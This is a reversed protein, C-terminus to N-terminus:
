TPRARMRVRGVSTAGGEEEEDRSSESVSPRVSPCVASPYPLFSPLFSPLIKEEKREGTSVGSHGDRRRRREDSTMMTTQQFQLQQQSATLVAARKLQPAFRLAPIAITFQGGLGFSNDPQFFGSTRLRRMNLVFALSLVFIM